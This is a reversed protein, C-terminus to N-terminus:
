FSYTLGGTSAYNGMARREDVISEFIYDLNATLSLRKNVPARLTAFTKFRYNQANDLLVTFFLRHEVYLRNHLLAHTGILSTHSRVGDYSLGENLAFQTKDYMVLQILELNIAKTAAIKWGAGAGALYRLGISRIVSNEYLAAGVPYVKHHHWGKLLVYTFVDSELKNGFITNQTFLFNPNILLNEKEIFLSANARLLAQRINGGSLRFDIGLAGRIKKVKGAGITDTPATQTYADRPQLIGMVLLVLILHIKM